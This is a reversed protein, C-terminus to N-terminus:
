ASVPHSFYFVSNGHEWHFQGQLRIYTYSIHNSYGLFQKKLISIGTSSKKLISIGATHTYSPIEPFTMPWFQEGRHDEWSLVISNWHHKMGRLQRM